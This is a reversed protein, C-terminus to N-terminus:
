HVSRHKRDMKALALAARLLNSVDSLEEELRDLTFSDTPGNSFCNAIGM